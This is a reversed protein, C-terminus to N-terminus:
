ILAVPRDKWPLVARYAEAGENADGPRLTVLWPIARLAALDRGTTRPDTKASASRIPTFNVALSDAHDGVTPDVTQLLRFFSFTAGFARLGSLVMGNVVAMM